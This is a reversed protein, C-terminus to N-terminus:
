HSRLITLPEGVSLSLHDQASGQNVAIEVLGLSNCYWFPAGPPLDSFTRASELVVGSVEIRDRKQLNRAYLGTMANGYRDLYIVAPHAASKEAPIQLTEELLMGEAISDTSLLATIPAFLDRGHFSASLQQPHWAISYKQVQQARAAVVDFLGNDPGVFWRGDAHLAMPRREGGVGPDVVGLFLADQPFWQTQSALFHAAAEIQYPELDAVLDIIECSAGSRRLASRMQALYPSGIGFDTFTLIM